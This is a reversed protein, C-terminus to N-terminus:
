YNLHPVEGPLPRNEPIKNKKNKLVTNCIFYYREILDTIEQKQQHKEPISVLNRRSNECDEEVTLYNDNSNNMASLELWSSDLYCEALNARIKWFDPPIDNKVAENKYADEAQNCTNYDMINSQYKQYLPSYCSTLTIALFATGALLKKLM